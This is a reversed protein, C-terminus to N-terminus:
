AVFTWNGFRAAHVVMLLASLALLPKFLRREGAWAAAAMVVPFFIPVYRSFSALSEGRVPFCLLFLVGAAAYAGYALPLRRLAWVTALVAAVMFGYEYMDDPANQVALGTARAITVLPFTTELQWQDGKALVVFPDNFHIGLFVAYAAIGAPAGLLFLANPRLPYRPRLRERWPQGPREHNPERVDDRPGYLYLIVLPVFILVAQPRSIAALFGLVGVWGWRGRLAMLFAGLTLALSLAESYIASFFVATPFFAMLLMTRRGHEAGLEREAVRQLLHLAVLLSVLSVVIGGILASGVPEGAIRSLLPYLPYFHSAGPESYGEHAILLNWFADWRAAPAVLKDGLDSFPTLREIRGSGPEAGFVAFAGVGAVWILVRSVGWALVADRSPRLRAAISAAGPAM